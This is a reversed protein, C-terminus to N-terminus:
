QLLFYLTEERKITIESLTSDYVASSIMIATMLSNRYKNDFFKKNDNVCHRNVLIDICM